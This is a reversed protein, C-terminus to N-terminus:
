PALRKRGAPAVPGQAPAKRPAKVAAAVYGKVEQRLADLSQLKTAPTHLVAMDPGAGTSTHGHQGHPHVPVLKGTAPDKRVLHASHLDRAVVKRTKKSGPKLPMARVSFHGQPGGTITHGYAHRELLLVVEDGKAFMPLGPVRVVLGDATKGGLLEFSFSKGVKARDGKWVDHVDLTFRTFVSRGAARRDLVDTRAVTGHLVYESAGVLEALPAHLVTMAHAPSAALAFGATLAAAIAASALRHRLPSSTM